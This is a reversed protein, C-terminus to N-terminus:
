KKINMMIVGALILCWGGWQLLTVQEKLVFISVIMTLVYVIGSSVPTLYTLSCKAVLTMYLLFSVVYLVLGLLTIWGIGVSFGSQGISLALPSSSGLKVLTLGAVSVVAYILISIIQM